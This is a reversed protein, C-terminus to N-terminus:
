KKRFKIHQNQFVFEFENNKPALRTFYLTGEKIAGPHIDGYSFGRTLVNRRIEALRATNERQTEVAIAFRDPILSPDALMTELVEEASHTDFQHKTQDIIVFDSPSIHIIERSKNQIRVFM